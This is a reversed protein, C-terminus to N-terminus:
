EKTFSDHSINDVLALTSMRGELVSKVSNIFSSKGAGAPGYLLIRLQRDEIYPEYDNVHQLASQKD